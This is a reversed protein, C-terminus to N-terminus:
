IQSKELKGFKSIVKFKLIEVIENSYLRIQAAQYFISFYIFTAIISISPFASYIYIPIKDYLTLSSLFFFILISGAAIIFVTLIHNADRMNRKHFIKIERWNEM